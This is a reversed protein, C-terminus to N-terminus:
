VATERGANDHVVDLIKHADQQTRDAETRQQEAAIRQRETQTESDHKAADVVLKQQEIDDPNPANTPDAQIGIQGLAQVAANPDVAAIDKLTFSVLEKASTPPAAPAAIAMKTKTITQGQIIYADNHRQIMVQCAKILTLNPVEKRIEYMCKDRYFEAAVTHNEQPIPFLIPNQLATKVIQDPATQPDHDKSLIENAAEELGKQILAYRVEAVEEDTENNQFNLGTEGSFEIIRELLEQGLEPTALEPFVAALATAVTGIHEVDQQREMMSKPMESGPRYSFVVEDDIDCKYWDDIDESTILGETTDCLEQLRQPPWYEQALLVNQRCVGVKMDATSQQAPTLVGVSMDRNLQAGRFTPASSPQGQMERSVMSIEQASEAAWDVMHWSDPTVPTAPMIGFTQGIPMDVGDRTYIVNKSGEVDDADYAERNVILINQNSTVQNAVATLTQNVLHQMSELESYCMGWFSVPDSVFYTYEFIKKFDAPYIDLIKDGTIAVCLGKHKVPSESEEAMESVVDRANDGRKISFRVEDGRKFEYDVPATYAALYEPTFYRSRVEFLSLKKLTNRTETSSTFPYKTGTQLTYLWMMPYSWESPTGLDTTKFRQEIEYRAMLPHHEFWRCQTLNGGQSYQEDVRFEMAPHISVSNDGRFIKKVTISAQLTESGGESIPETPTNCEPCPPASQEGEAMESDPSGEASEDDGQPDQYASAGCQPCAFEGPVDFTAESDEDVEYEKGDQNEDWYTKTFVGHTLQKLENIRLSKDTTWLQDDVWDVINQTILANKKAKSDQTRPEATVQITAQSMTAANARVKPKVINKTYINFPTVSNIVPEIYNNTGPNWRGIRDGLSEGRNRKFLTVSTQTRLREPTEAVNAAQQADRIIWAGFDLGEPNNTPADAM